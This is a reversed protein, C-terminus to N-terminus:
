TCSQMIMNGTSDKFDGGRNDVLSQFDSITNGCCVQATQLTCLLDLVVSASSLQCPVGCLVQCEAVEVRVGHCSLTWRLDDDVKVLFTADASLHPLSVALKAFVLTDEPTTHSCEIWGNPLSRGELHKKLSALDTVSAHLQDSLPLSM